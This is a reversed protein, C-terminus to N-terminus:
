GRNVGNFPYGKENGKECSVLIEGPFAKEPIRHKLEGANMVISSGGKLSSDDCMSSRQNLTMNKPLMAPNAVKRPM